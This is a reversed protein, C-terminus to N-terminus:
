SGRVENIKRKEGDNDLLLLTAVSPVVSQVMDSIATLEVSLEEAGELASDDVATFMVCQSRLPLGGAHPDFTMERVDNLLPVYDTGIHFSHIFLLLHQYVTNPSISNNYYAGDTTIDMSSLGVVLSKQLVGGEIAELSICVEM